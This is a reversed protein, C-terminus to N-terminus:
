AKAKLIWERCEAVAADLEWRQVVQGRFAQAVPQLVAAALPATGVQAALYSEREGPPMMLLTASAEEFLRVMWRYGWLLVRGGPALHRMAGDRFRNIRPLLAADLREWTDLFITDYGGPESQQLYTEVDGLVFRLDVGRPELAEKLMPAVLRTVIPSREVITIATAGRVYQPYLGLGAGGVLVRGGSRHANNYMMMREQPTDSMWLTGNPDFLGRVDLPPDLHYPRGFVTVDAVYERTVRYGGDYDGVPVQVVPVTLWDLTWIADDFDPDFGAIM